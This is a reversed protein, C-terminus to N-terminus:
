DAAPNVFLTAGDAAASVPASLGAGLATVTAIALGALHRQRM